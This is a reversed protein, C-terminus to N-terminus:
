LEGKIMAEIQRVKEVTMGHPVVYATSIYSRLGSWAVKLAWSDEFEQVSPFVEGYIGGSSGVLAWTKKDFRGYAGSNGLMVWKRGVKTIPAEIFAPKGGRWTREVVCVVMGVEPEPYHEISM